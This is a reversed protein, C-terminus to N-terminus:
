RINSRFDSALPGREELFHRYREDGELFVKRFALAYRGLAYGNTAPTGWSFHGALSM